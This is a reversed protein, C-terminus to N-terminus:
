RWRHPVAPLRLSARVSRFTDGICGANTRRKPNVQKAGSCGDSSRPLVKQRSSVLWCAKLALIRMSIQGIFVMVQAASIFIRSIEKVEVIIRQGDITLEYDPTKSNEESIRKCTIGSNTGYGEFWKESQTKM